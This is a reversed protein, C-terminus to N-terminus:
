FLKNVINEDRVKKLNYALILLLFILPYIYSFQTILFSNFGGRIDMPIHIVIKLILLDTYQFKSIIRLAILLVILYIFLSTVVGFHGLQHYAEGFYTTTLVPNMKGQPYMGTIEKTARWFYSVIPKDPWIARPIFSIPLYYFYQKLYDKQPNNVYLRYFSETSGSSSRLIQDYVVEASVAEKINNSGLTGGRAFNGISVFLLVAIFVITITKLKVKKVHYNYFFIPLLLDILIVFRTHSFLLKNLFVIFWLFTGTKYKKNKWFYFILIYSVTDIIPKLLISRQIIPNDLYEGVRDRTLFSIFKSFSFIDVSFIQVFNYLTALIFLILLYNTNFQYKSM